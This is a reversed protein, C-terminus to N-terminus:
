CLILTVKWTKMDINTMNSAMKMRLHAIASKGSQILQALLAMFFFCFFIVKEKCGWKKPLMSHLIYSQTNRKNTVELCPVLSFNPLNVTRVFILDVLTEHYTSSSRWHFIVKPPLCGKISLWSRLLTPPQFKTLQSNECIYSWSLHRSGHWM